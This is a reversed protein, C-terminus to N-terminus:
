DSSSIPWGSDLHGILRIDNARAFIGSMCLVTTLLFVIRCVEAESFPKFALM